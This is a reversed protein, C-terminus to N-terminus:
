EITLISIKPLNLNNKKSIEVLLSNLETFKDRNDIQRYLSKLEKLEQDSIKPSVIEISREVYIVADYSYADRVSNSLIWLFLGLCIPYSILLFCRLRNIKKEPIKELTNKSNYDKLEKNGNDNINNEDYNRKTHLKSIKIFLVTESILAILPTTMLLLQIFTYPNLVLIGIVGTSGKGVNEYLSNAYSDSLSSFLSAIFTTTSSSVPSLFKEWVGSGIAGLFITAVIGFFIRTYKNKM